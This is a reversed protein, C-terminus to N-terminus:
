RQIRRVNIRKFTVASLPNSELHNVPFTKFLVKFGPYSPCGFDFLMARFRHLAGDDLQAYAQAVHVFFNFDIQLIAAFKIVLHEDSTTIKFTRKQHIGRSSERNFGM